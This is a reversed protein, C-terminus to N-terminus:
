PERMEAMGEKRTLQAALVATYLASLGVLIYIARSLFTMEGFIAAVLDFEFLGILGWNLGGIIVLALTIYDLTTLRRM